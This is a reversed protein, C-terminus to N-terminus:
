VNSPVNIPIFIGSKMKREWCGGFHTPPNFSFRIPQPALQIQLEPQPSAFTVKLEREGGKFNTGQDSLLEFRRAVFQRLAMLFSDTDISCLLDLHAARITLCKFIIGGDRRM